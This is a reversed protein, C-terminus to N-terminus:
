NRTIKWHDLSPTFVEGRISMAELMDEVEDGDLKKEIARQKIDRIHAGKNTDIEIDDHLEKIITLIKKASMRQMASSGVMIVDIDFKGGKDRAMSSLYHDFLRISRKIDELIIENSLRVRASAESLRILGELQRLTISLRDIREGDEDKGIGEKRKDTYYDLLYEEVDDNMIPFINRKAYAIYKQLLDIEIAPKTKIVNEIEEDSNSTAGHNKSAIMQGARHRKIVKSSLRKDKQIEAKDILPFILDFRSLLTPLLTIQETYSKEQDFRGKKPNAGALVACRTYLSAKITAKAFYIMQQEMAPHLADRDGQSMKDLEDICAMGKDALVLIGGVLTWRGDYDDKVATATLGVQTASKASAFMGRPSINATYQLLQSKGTGPDGLLLIHIDGRVREMETEKTVGGFLQLSIAEKIEDMEFIGPAISDRILGYVKPNNALAKIEEEEKKTITIDEYPSDEQEISFADLFLDFDVSKKDNVRRQSAFLVGNIVVREGPIVKGCLDDKAFVKLNQPPATGKLGEPSEQINIIQLDIYECQEKILNFSTKGVTRLCNKNGCAIPERLLPEDQYMVLHEECRACKFVAKSLRPRVESRTQVIGDIAIYHELESGRLDGLNHKSTKPINFVRMNIEADKPDTTGEYYDVDIPLLNRIAEEGAQIYRRPENLFKEAFEDNIRAIDWYDVMLSKEEPYNTALTQIKKYYNGHIPHQLYDEWTKILDKDM